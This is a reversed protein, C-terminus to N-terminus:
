NEDIIEVRGSDVAYIRGPFSETFPEATSAFVQTKRDL